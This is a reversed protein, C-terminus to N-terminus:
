DSSKRKESAECLLALRNWALQTGLPFSKSFFTIRRRNMSSSDAEEFMVIATPKMENDGLLLSIGRRATAYSALSYAKLFARV